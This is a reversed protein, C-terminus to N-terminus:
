RPRDPGVAMERALQPPKHVGGPDHGRCQAGSKRVLQRSRRRSSRVVSDAEMIEGAPEGFMQDIDAHRLRHRQSCRLDRSRCQQRVVFGIEDLLPAQARAGDVMHQAEGVPEEIMAKSGRHDVQGTKAGRVSDAEDLMYQCVPMRVAVLRHRGM